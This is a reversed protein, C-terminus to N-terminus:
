LEEIWRAVNALSADSVPSGRQPMREGCVPEDGSHGSLKQYFLSGEPDGAVLYPTATDVCESSSAVGDVLAALAEDRGRLDLEGAVAAGHCAAANCRSDILRDYIDGWEPRLPEREVASAVVGFPEQTANAPTQTREVVPVGCALWNRLIERGADTDLTAMPTSEGTVHDVRAYQPAGERIRDGTAGPIPMRGTTVQDYIAHRHELVRTAMARLRETQAENQEPGFSALRLDYELGLPAGHRLDGDVESHCFAGYGCSQVILAQGEFAPSGTEDYVLRRAENEDCVGLEPGCAALCLPAFLAYYIAFRMTM